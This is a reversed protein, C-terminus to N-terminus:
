CDSCFPSFVQNEMQQYQAFGASMRASLCNTDAMTKMSAFPPLIGIAQNWRLRRNPRDQIQSTGDFFLYLVARPPDITISIQGTRIVSDTRSCSRVLALWEIPGNEAAHLGSSFDNSHRPCCPLLEGDRCQLGCSACRLLIVALGPCPLVCSYRRSPTPLLLSAM